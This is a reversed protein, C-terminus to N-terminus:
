CVFGFLGLHGITIIDSASGVANVSSLYNLSLVLSHLYSYIYSGCHKFLYALSSTYLM